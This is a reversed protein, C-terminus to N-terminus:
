KKEEYVSGRPAIDDIIMADGEIRFLVRWNQVRLRYEDRGQLMIVNSDLSAPDAAYADIKERVLRRKDCRRLARGALKSLVVRM